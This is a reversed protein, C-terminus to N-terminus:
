ACRVEVGRRRLEAVVTPDAASDTILMHLQEVRAILSINRRKLKSADAVAVVQRSIAIMKANLQAELLHPTMVGCEPDLGDAGLFLRDAQLGSIAAEAMYGSFANSEPRLVGGPMILRVWPIDALLVAINLAITIVNLSSFEMHRLQKAIEATTTGSDFVITEGDKILTVAERAIRVKEAHHLTRKVAIPRDQGDRIALAGGHTRELAGASALNALDNRITATSTRFARALEDVTVRGHKALLDLIKHRREGLMLIARDTIDTSDAASITDDVTAPKIPSRAQVSGNSATM